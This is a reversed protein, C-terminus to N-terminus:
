WDEIDEIEEEAAKKQGHNQIQDKQVSRERKSTKQQSRSYLNGQGRWGIPLISRSRTSATGAPVAPPSSAINHGSNFFKSTRQAIPSSGAASSTDESSPGSGSGVTAGAMSPAYTNEKPSYNTPLEPELDSRSPLMVKPPKLSSKLPMTTRRRIPEPPRPPELEPEVEDDLGAFVFARWANDEDKDFELTREPEKEENLITDVPKEITVEQDVTEKAETSHNDGPQAQPSRLFERWNEEKDGDSVLPPAKVPRDDLPVESADRYELNLKRIFDQSQNEQGEVNGDRKGGAIQPSIGELNEREPHEELTDFETSHKQPYPQNLEQHEDVIDEEENVTHDKLFMEWGGQAEGTPISDIAKGGQSPRPSINSGLMWEEGEDEGASSSGSSACAILSQNQMQQVDEQILRDLFNNRHTFRDNSLHERSTRKKVRSSEQAHDNHTIQTLRSLMVRSQVPKAPLVEFPSSTWTDAAVEDIEEIIDRGKEQGTSVFKNVPAPPSLGWERPVQSYPALPSSPYGGNIQTDRNVRWDNLNFGIDEPLRRFNEVDHKKGFLNSGKLLMPPSNEEQRGEIDFLMTEESIDSMERGSLGHQEPNSGGFQTSEGGIQVFGGDSLNRFVGGNFGRHESGRDVSGRELSPYRPYNPGDSRGEHGDGIGAQNIPDLFLEPNRLIEPTAREQPRVNVASQKSRLVLPRALTTCVWSDKELLRQKKTKIDSSRHTRNETSKDAEEVLEEFPMLDHSIDCAKRKKQSEQTLIIDLEPVRAKRRGGSVSTGDGAFAFSLAAHALPTSNKARVKAFYSKQIRATDSSPKGNRARSGGTWNM